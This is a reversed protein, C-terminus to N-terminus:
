MNNDNSTCRTKDFERYCEIHIFEWDETVLFEDLIEEFCWVCIKNKM